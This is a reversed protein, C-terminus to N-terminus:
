RGPARLLGRHGAVQADTLDEAAGFVGFGANSVVVGIRRLDSFAEAVVDRLQERGFGPPEPSLGPLPPAPM